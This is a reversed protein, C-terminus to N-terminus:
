KNTWLALLTGLIIALLGFLISSWLKRSKKKTEVALVFSYPKNYHESLKKIIEEAFEYSKSSKILKLEERVCLDFLEISDISNKLVVYAKAIQTLKHARQIRQDIEFVFEKIESTEFSKIRRKDKFILNQELEITWHIKKGFLYEYKCDILNDDILLECNDFKLKM